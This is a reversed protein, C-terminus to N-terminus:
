ALPARVVIGISTSRHAAILLRLHLVSLTTGVDAPAPYPPVDIYGDLFPDGARPVIPLMELGQDALRRALQAFHQEQFLVTRGRELTDGQAANFETTHVGIGGPRLCRSSREIFALGQEISGLHELACSSWCFDFANDLDSPIANMDVARFTLRAAADARSCLGPM